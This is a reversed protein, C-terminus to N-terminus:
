SSNSHGPVKTVVSNVSRTSGCATTTGDVATCTLWVPLKTKTTLSSMALTCGTFTSRVTPPCDTTLLPSLPPSVTTVSPWNCSDLPVRTLVRLALTAPPQDMFIESVQM